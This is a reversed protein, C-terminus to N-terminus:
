FSMIEQYLQNSIKVGEREVVERRLARGEGPLVAGSQKHIEAFLSEAQHQYENAGPFRKPDFALIFVGGRAPGGDANDEVAAEYSCVDNILPGVLLEIMLAINAGKYGGFPLQAGSLVALPDTSPLGESDLGIGEPLVSKREAMLQIDGRAMAASAQDFILPPSSQRPWAFAMPNTGYLAKSGGAPVVAPTHATLAMAVLGAEALADVEIWLASFHFCQRLAMCALGTSRAQEILQQKAQMFAFPAMANDANVQVLAATPQLVEPRPHSNIKGSVLSTMYGPLRFLGHSRSGDREALRIWNATAQAHAPECGVDILRSLALEYCAQVGLIMAENM